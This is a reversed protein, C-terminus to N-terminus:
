HQTSKIESEGIFTDKSIKHILLLLCIELIPWCCKQFVLSITTSTDKDFFAYVIFKTKHVPQVVTFNNVTCVVTFLM